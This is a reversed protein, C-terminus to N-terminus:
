GSLKCIFVGGFLEYLSLISQDIKIDVENKGLYIKEVYRAIMMKKTDHDANDFRELWDNTDERLEYFKDIDKKYNELDNELNILQHDIEELENEKNNILESIMNESFKSQGLLVKPLEKKLIEYELIIDKKKNQIKKLEKRKEKSLQNDNENIQNKWLIKNLNSIFDKIISVSEEDYKKGGFMTCEHTDKNHKYNANQCNYRRMINKHIEGSKTIYQRHNHSVSLKNGCYKCFVLGSLLLQSNTPLPEYIRKNKRKDALKQANNWIDEAIIQWESNYDQLKWESKPKGEKNYPKCGIYIPNRIIKNIQEGTFHKNNRRKYQTENNLYESIRLGGMGKNVYLNFIIKIMESEEQNIRLGLLTKNKIKPHPIETDYIEYGYPPQGSIYRGAENHTAYANKVRESIKLSEGSSNWFTIYNMLKDTHTKIDQRGEEVSWVEIGNNILFEVVFPTEDERRGIRDFMFVLLIDFAKDEAGKKIETLDDRNKTEIKWGSIGKASIEKEIKWDPKNLIFNFCARKQTPIDAEGKNDKYLQKETSVRYLCWVRKM